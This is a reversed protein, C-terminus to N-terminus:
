SRLGRPAPQDPRHQGGPPLELAGAASGGRQLDAGLLHRGGDARRGRVPARRAGAAAPPARSPAPPRIPYSDDTGGPAAARGPDGEPTPAACGRTACSAIDQRRRLPRGRRRAPPAGLEIVIAVVILQCVGGRGGRRGRRIASAAPHSSRAAQAAGRAGAGGGGAAKKQSAVVGTPPSSNRSPETCMPAVRSSHSCGR